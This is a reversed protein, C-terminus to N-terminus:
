PSGKARDISRVQPRPQEARDLTTDDFASPDEVPEIHTFVTSHPLARRVDAEVRELLDHGRQITWHGPVLVHMSVFSRRGSQRNRIAHFAVGEGRYRQLAADIASQEAPALAHDMLGGSSRRVLNVGTVVINAAVALAILPDLREWGTLGVVAVGAIVGVSTWVDTLLHRGDAEVTISRHHRGARVLTIGVLLNILTAGASVALGVGVEELPVPHLLRRVAVWAISAAAVMILGGEVGASFYEAKEHGYMHEADAPQTAWRVVILAILAAALNVVSELADSLLGTSGTLRWALTKLAITALGATVSLLMLRTLLRRQSVLEEVHGAYAWARSAAPALLDAHGPDGSYWARATGTPQQTGPGSTGIASRWSASSRGIASASAPLLDRSVELRRM